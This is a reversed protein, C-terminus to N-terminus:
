YTALLFYVSIIALSASSGAIIMATATNDKVRIEMPSKAAAYLVLPIFFPLFYRGQIGDVIAYGVPSFAVYLAGFISVSGLAALIMIWPLRRKIILLEPQAYLLAFFILATLIFVLMFPGTIFNWGVLSTGGQMYMDINIIVSKVTAIIFHLPHNIVYSMQESPNVPLGDPRQSVPANGTKQILTWALGAVTALLVGLTKIVLAKSKPGINKSPVLLLSLSLFIYNIKVLPLLAGAVILLAILRTQTSKKAEKNTMLTLLTAMYLLSLAIAISDATVMSAQFLSIPLLAVVFFLWKIRLNSLFKLALFVITSYLLLGGLRALMITQGINLHLGRALVAGAVPGTYAVPSYSATWIYDHKITSFHQSTFQEYKTTSDVDRRAALGKAQNNDLLDQKTYNSLEYLNDPIKGGFTEKDMHPLIEGHSLQYVRAFHSTEDVGWLPPTLLVFYMGFIMSIIAFSLHASNIISYYIDKILVLPLKAYNM